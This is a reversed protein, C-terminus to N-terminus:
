AETANLTININLSFRLMWKEHNCKMEMDQRYLRSICQIHNRRIFNM